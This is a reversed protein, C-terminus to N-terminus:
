RRCKNEQFAQNYKNLSEQYQELLAEYVGDEYKGTFDDPLKRNERKWQKAQSKFKKLQKRYMELQTSTKCVPFEPLVPLSKLIGYAGSLFSLKENQLQPIVIEFKRNDFIFKVPQEPNSSLLAEIIPIFKKRNKILDTRKYDEINIKLLFSIFDETDEIPAFIPRLRPPPYIFCEGKCQGTNFSCIAICNSPCKVCECSSQAKILATLLLIISLTLLFKSVFLKM